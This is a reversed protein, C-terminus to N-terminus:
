TTIFLPETDTATEVRGVSSSSTNISIESVSKKNFVKQASADEVICSFSIRYLNGAGGSEIPKVSVRRLESFNKGYRGHFTKHIETLLRLFNTASENNYSGSFSDGFTEFFLYMDIQMECNQMLLGKDECATTEFSLFLAPTPFPLEETLFSVQEHWLDVWPIEQLENNVVLALEQYLDTFANM